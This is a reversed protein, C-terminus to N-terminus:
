SLAARVGRMLEGTEISELLPRAWAPVNARQSAVLLGFLTSLPRDLRAELEDVPGYTAIFAEQAPGQLSGTVNRWDSYATGLTFWDYDFIIARAPQGRSLALNGRDFDEYNFTQPCRQMRRRLEGAAEVAIEWGAKGALGLRSGAAALAQPTLDEVWAYLGAPLSEPQQLAARGAAHLQRYWEAVALGVRRRGLDAATAARWTRSHALDELLLARGSRAHVPLTPVGCGSLLAYVQPELAAPSDFGKLVRWSRGAKLRCVFHGSKFTLLEAAALDPRRLGLAALDDDPLLDIWDSM